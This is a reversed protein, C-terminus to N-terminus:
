KSYETFEQKTHSTLIIADDVLTADMTKNNNVMYFM